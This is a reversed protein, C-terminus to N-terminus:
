SSASCRMTCRTSMTCRPCSTRALEADRQIYADLVDKLMLEVESGHPAPRPAGTIEPMQLVTTRKAMNKAYDGIRELNASIKFVSLILACTSRPPRACPSSAPPKKTSRRRWFTSPATTAASRSALEADRQELSAIAANLIADEVLGGMKM